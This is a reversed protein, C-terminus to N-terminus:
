PRPYHDCLYQGIFSLSKNSDFLGKIEPPLCDLTKWEMCKQISYRDHEKTRPLYPLAEIHRESIDTTYYNYSTPYRTNVKNVLDFDILHGGGNKTFVINALRVDSHVLDRDHLKSLTELVPAFDVFMPILLRETIYDYSLRHFRGDSSLQQLTTNPLLDLEAILEYNHDDEETDYYKHITATALCKVVRHTIHEHHKVSGQECKVAVDTISRGQIVPKDCLYHVCAYLVCAFKRFEVISTTEMMEIVQIKGDGNFQCLLLKFHDKCGSLGLVARRHESYIKASEVCYAITEHFSEEEEELKYIGSLVTDVPIGSAMTCVTFDPKHIASDDKYSPMQHICAGKKTQDNNPFLFRDLSRCLISTYTLESLDIETLYRTNHKTLHVISDVDAVFNDLLIRDIEFTQSNLTVTITPIVDLKLDIFCKYVELAFWHQYIRAHSEVQKQQDQSKAFSSPISVSPEKFVRQIYRQIVVPTAHSNNEIDILEALLIARDVNSYGHFTVELTSLDKRLKHLCLKIFDDVICTELDVFVSTSAPFSHWRTWVRCYFFIINVM